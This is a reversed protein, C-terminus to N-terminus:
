VVKKNKKPSDVVKLHLNYKEMTEKTNKHLREHVEEFSLGKFEKAVQRKWRRVEELSKEKM